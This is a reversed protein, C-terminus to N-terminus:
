RVDNEYPRLLELMGHDNSCGLIVHKCQDGVNRLYCKLEKSLNVDTIKNGGHVYSFNVLAQSQTVGVGFDEILDRDMHYGYKELKYEWDHIDAVVRVIIRWRTHDQYKRDQLYKHVRDILHQGTLRGGRLGRCVYDPHFMFDHGDIFVVVFPVETGRDCLTELSHNTELMVEHIKKTMVCNELLASERKKYVMGQDKM